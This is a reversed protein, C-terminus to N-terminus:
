HTYMSIVNNAYMIYGTSDDIPYKSDYPHGEYPITLGNQIVGKEACGELAMEEYELFCLTTEAPITLSPRLLLRLDREGDETM